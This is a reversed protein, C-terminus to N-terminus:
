APRWKGESLHSGLRMRSSRASYGSATDRAAMGVPARPDRDIQAGTKGLTEDEVGAVHAVFENERFQRLSNLLLNSHM